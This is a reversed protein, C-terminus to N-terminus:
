PQHASAAGRARCARHARAHVCPTLAALSLLQSVGGEGGLSCCGGCLCRGASRAGILSAFPQVVLSTGMVILLDADKFDDMREWFREPLNEGFFVIGPKVLGRCGSHTCYAPKGEGAHPTTHPLYSPHAQPSCRLCTAQWVCGRRRVRVGSFVAARVHEPDHAKNCAICRATDFNGHAPVVADHPLGAQCELSDINQPRM